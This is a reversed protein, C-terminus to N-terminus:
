DVKLIRTPLSKLILLFEEFLYKDATINDPHLLLIIDRKHAERSLWQYNYKSVDRWYPELWYAAPFIHLQQDIFDVWESNEGNGFFLKMGMKKGWEIYHEPKYPPHHRRGYRHVGSGHKSFAFVKRGLYTELFVLEEQFTEFSRSNELHLGLIHRGSQIQKLISISPLTCKRVFVYARVKHENLAELITALDSLYGLVQIKPFYFDSAIRSLLQKVKSKKGYARDVDIRIIVAM